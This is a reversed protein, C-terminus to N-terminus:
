GQLFLFGISGKLEFDVLNTVDDVFGDWDGVVFVVVGDDSGPLWFAGLLWGLNGGGGTLWCGSVGTVRRTESSFSTGVTLISPTNETDM